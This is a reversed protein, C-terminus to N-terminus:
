KSKVTGPQGTDTNDLALLCAGRTEAQGDADADGDEVKDEDLSADSDDHILTSKFVCLAGWSCLISKVSTHIGTWQGGHRM